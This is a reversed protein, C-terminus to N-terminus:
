YVSILCRCVSYSINTHSKVCVWCWQLIGVAIFEV